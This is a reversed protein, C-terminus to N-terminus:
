LRLLLKGTATRNEMLRHAEAAQELPLITTVDIRVEGNAILPLVKRATEAVLHPASQTLGTISYGMIARSDALLSMPTFSIDPQGGANGFVVLRGFPALLSLSQSRAPEGVSDLVIDVGKGGSAEQVAQVFDKRLVVQDYGAFLASSVKDRNGVTGILQGAGLHRAIQAAVTGIGGAAAHVLVSEGPRLRAVDALLNYATLGTAPFGAATTLEIKQEQQDLPFTLMASALAFEAYGGRVTLAAVPQSVHLGKVGQGVAHIYGAVEYGPVFPLHEVMYGRQRAMLDAYNVGVYAVQITVQGAAPQPIPVERIELVDSDGFQPIVVARM